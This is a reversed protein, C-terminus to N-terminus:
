EHDEDMMAMDGNSLANEYVSNMQGHADDLGLRERLAEGPFVLELNKTSFLMKEARRINPGWLNGM